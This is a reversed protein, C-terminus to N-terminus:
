KYCDNPIGRKSKACVRLEGFCPHFISCLIHDGPVAYNLIQQFIIEPRIFINEISETSKGIKKGSQMENATNVVIETLKQHTHTRMFELINGLFQQTAKGIKPKMCRICQESLFVHRNTITDVEHPALCRNVRNFFHSLRSQYINWYDTKDRVWLPPAFESINYKYKRIENLWVTFNM